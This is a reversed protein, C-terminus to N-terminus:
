NIKEVDSVVWEGDTFSFSIRLKGTCCYPSVIEDFSNVEARISCIIDISKLDIFRYNKKTKLQVYEDDSVTKDVIRLKGYNERSIFTDDELENIIDTKNASILLSNAKVLPISYFALFAMITFFLIAVPIIIIMIKKM